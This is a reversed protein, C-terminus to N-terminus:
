ILWALVRVGSAEAIVSKILNVWYERGHQLLYKVLTHSGLDSIYLCIYIIWCAPLSHYLLAKNMSCFMIVSCSLSEVRYDFSHMACDKSVQHHHTIAFQNRPWIRLDTALDSTLKFRTTVDSTNSSCIPALHRLMPSTQTQTQSFPDTVILNSSLRCCRRAIPSEKCCQYNGINGPLM